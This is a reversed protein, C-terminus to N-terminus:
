GDQAARLRALRGRIELRAADFDIAFDHVVGAANKKKEELRQRETIAVLLWNRYEQVTRKVDTTAPIEGAEIEQIMRGVTETLTSLQEMAVSLIRDTAGDDGFPTVLAM